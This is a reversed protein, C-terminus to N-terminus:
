LFKFAMTGDTAGEGARAGKPGAGNGAGGGADGTVGVNPAPPKRVAPPLDTDMEGAAIARARWINPSSAGAGAWPVALV